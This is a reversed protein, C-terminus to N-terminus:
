TPADDVRVAYREDGVEEYHVISQLQDAAHLELHTIDLNRVDQPRISFEQPEGSAPQLVLRTQSVETLLGQVRGTSRESGSNGGALVVVGVIALLVLILGGLRLLDGRDLGTPQQDTTM